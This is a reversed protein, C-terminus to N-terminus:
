NAAKTKKAVPAPAPMLVALRAEAAALAHKRNALAEEAIDIRMTMERIERPEARLGTFAKYERLANNWREVATEAEAIAERASLVDCKARDLDRLEALQRRKDAGAEWAAAKAASRERAARGRAVFGLKKM